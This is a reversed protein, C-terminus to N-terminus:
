PTGFTKLAGMYLACQATMKAIACTEQSVICAHSPRVSLRFQRPMYASYCLGIHQQAYFRPTMNEFQIAPQMTNVNFLCSHM